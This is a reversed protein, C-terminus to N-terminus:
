FGMRVKVTKMGVPQSNINTLEALSYRAKDLVPPTDYIEKAVVVAEEKTLDRFHLVDYCRGKRLLAQDVENINPLNTTFIIKKRPLSVLGDAANLFKHMMTNGDQRSGMVTDADELILMNSEQSSMFSAFFGDSFLLDTDYTVMASTGSAKILEKIFTTKGTGPPGILILISAKSNLYDTTYDRISKEMWPYASAITNPISLPLQFIEMERYSPGFAWNITVGDDLFGQEEIWDSFEKIESYEGHAQFDVNSRRVTFEFRLCGTKTKFYAFGIPGQNIVYKFFNKHIWEEFQFNVPLMRSGSACYINMDLELAKMLFRHRDREGVETSVLNSTEETSVKNRIGIFQQQPELYRGGDREFQSSKAEAIIRRIKSDIGSRRRRVRNQKPQVYRKAIM